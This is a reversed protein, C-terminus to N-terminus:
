NEKTLNPNRNPNLLCQETTLVTGTGDSDIAGGELIWSKNIIELGVDSALEQGIDNDGDMPYKGGWGNFKHCLARGNRLILPGTDRLWIDGYRRKEISVEESILERARVYNIDDRVILRVKQGSNAVANAFAAIQRQAPELYELWEERLYPIRDLALGTAGM